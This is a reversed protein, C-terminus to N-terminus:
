WCVAAATTAAAAACSSKAHMRVSRCMCPIGRSHPLPLDKKPPPPNLHPNKSVEPRNKAICQLIDYELHRTLQVGAPSKKELAEGAGGLPQELPRGLEQLDAMDSQEQGSAARPSDASAGQAQMPSSVFARKRPARKKGRSAARPAAAQLPVLPTMYPDGKPDGKVPWFAEIRAPQGISGKGSHSLQHGLPAHQRARFLWWVM